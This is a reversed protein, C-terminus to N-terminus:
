RAETHISDFAKSFDIFTIVTPLHKRKVGEVIRRLALVQQVTTRTQRFSNQNTRLLPDLVSRIRNLLMINYVKAVVSSLSIGRYNDTKTLDGSKIIPVINATTWQALLEHCTYAKNIINLILDDIPVRKLVESV